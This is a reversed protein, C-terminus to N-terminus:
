PSTAVGSHGTCKTYGRAEAIYRTPSTSYTIVVNWERQPLVFQRALMDIDHLLRDSVVFLSRYVWRPMFVSSLLQTREFTDLPLMRYRALECQVTHHIDAGASTLMSPHAILHGLYKFLPPSTTITHGAWQVQHKRHHPAWHIIETKTHNIKFKLLQSLGQVRHLVARLEPESRAIFARDDLYIFFDM